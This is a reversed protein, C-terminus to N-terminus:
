KLVAYGDREEAVKRVQVNSVKVMESAKVVPKMASIIEITPEFEITDSLPVFYKGDVIVELFVHKEGASAYQKMAPLTVVIQSGVKKAPFGLEVGDDCQLVFKYKPTDTTGSIAVDFELKAEEDLKLKTLM